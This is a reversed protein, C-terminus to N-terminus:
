DRLVHGAAAPWGAPRWCSAPRSRTTITHVEHEGPLAAALEASSRPRPVAPGLGGGGRAAARRRALAQRPQRPGPSTTPVDADRQRELYANADFRAM